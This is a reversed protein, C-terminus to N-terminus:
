VDFVTDVIYTDGKRYLKLGHLTVAKVDVKFKHKARNIKEGSLTYTCLYTESDYSIHVNQPILLLSRADKYFIIENLFSVYLMDIEATRLEGSITTEPSIASLDETMVSLLARGAKIFIEEPSNGRVRVAVDAHTINNILEYEM